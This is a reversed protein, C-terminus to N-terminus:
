PPEDMKVVMAPIPNSILTLMLLNMNWHSAGSPECRGGEEVTLMALAARPKLPTPSLVDRPPGSPM